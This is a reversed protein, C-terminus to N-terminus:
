MHICQKPGWERLGWGQASGIRGEQEEIKNLLFCILYYSFCLTKALILYHYSYLSIGTMADVCKHIAVWMAEKRGSRKARGPGKRM